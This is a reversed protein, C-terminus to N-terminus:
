NVSLVKYTVSFFQVADTFLEQVVSLPFCYGAAETKLIIRWSCKKFLCCFDREKLIMSKVAALGFAALRKAAVGFCRLDLATIPDATIKPICIAQHFSFLSHITGM